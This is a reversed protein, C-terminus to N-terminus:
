RRWRLAGRCAGSWAVRERQKRSEPPLGRIDVIHLGERVDGGDDIAPGVPVGTEARLLALAGLDEGKGALDVVRAEHFHGHADGQLPDDEIDAAADGPSLLELCGLRATGEPPQMGADRALRGM